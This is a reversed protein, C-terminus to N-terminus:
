DENNRQPRITGNEILFGVIKEKKMKDAVFKYGAEYMEQCVEMVYRMERKSYENCEMYEVIRDKLKDSNNILLDADFRDANVTFYACIFNWRIIHRIIHWVIHLCLM